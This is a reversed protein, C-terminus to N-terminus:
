LRGATCCVLLSSSFRRVRLDRKRIIEAVLIKLRNPPYVGLSELYLRTVTVLLVFVPGFNECNKLRLHKKTM